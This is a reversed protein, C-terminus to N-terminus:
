NRWKYFGRQGYELNFSEPCIPHGDLDLAADIMGDHNLSDPLELAPSLPDGDEYTWPGAWYTQILTGNLFSKYTCILTPRKLWIMGAPTPKSNSLAKCDEECLKLASVTDKDGDGELSGLILFESIFFAPIFLAAYFIINSIVKITDRLIKKM